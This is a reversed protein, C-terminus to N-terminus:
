AYEWLMRIQRVTMSKAAAEGNRTGFAIAMDTTPINTSIVCKYSDKDSADSPAGSTSIYFYIKSNTGDWHFGVGIDTADVLTGQATQSTSTGSLTSVCDINTDGDDKRFGVCAQRNDFLNGSIRQCLGIFIDSQTADSVQFIAEFWLDLNSQLKFGEKALEYFYYENDGTGNTFKAGGGASDVPALPTGSGSSTEMWEYANADVADTLCDHPSFFTWLRHSAKKLAFSPESPVYHWLGKQAGGANHRFFGTLTDASYTVKGVMARIRKVYQSGGHNRTSYDKQAM